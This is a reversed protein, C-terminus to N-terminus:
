TREKSGLSLVVRHRHKEITGEFQNGESENLLFVQAESSTLENIEEHNIDTSVISVLTENLSRDPEMQSASKADESSRRCASILATTEERLSPPRSAVVDSYSAMTPSATPNSHGKLYPCVDRTSFVSTYQVHINNALVRPPNTIGMEAQTQVNYTRTMNTLIGITLYFM